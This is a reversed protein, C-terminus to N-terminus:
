DLIYLKGVERCGKFGSIVGMEEHKDQILWLMSTAIGKNRLSKPVYISIVNCAKLGLTRKNVIEYVIYSANDLIIVNNFVYDSLCQAFVQWWSLTHELGYEDIQEIALTHRSKMMKIFKMWYSVM